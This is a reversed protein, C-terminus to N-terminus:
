HCKEPDPIKEHVTHCVLITFFQVEITAFQPTGPLLYSQHPLKCTPESRLQNAQVLYLRHQLLLNIRSIEHQVTPPSTIEM